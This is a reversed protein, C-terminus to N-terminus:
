GGAVVEADVVTSSTRERQWWARAEDDTCDTRRQYAREMKSLPRVAEARGSSRSAPPEDEWQRRNLWTAPHPVFQMEGREAWHAIWADLGHAMAFATAEDRCLKMFAREAQPKGVRRPYRKWFGEFWARRRDDMSILALPAVRSPHDEGQDKEMPLHSASSRSSNNGTVPCFEERHSGSSRSSNNGTSDDRDREWRARHFRIVLRGREGHELDIIGFAVLRDLTKAARARSVDTRKALETLSVSALYDDTHSSLWLAIFREYIDLTCDDLRWNPTRTYGDRM